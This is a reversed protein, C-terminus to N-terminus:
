GKVGGSTLGTTIYRQLFLAMVPIAAPVAGAAFVGWSESRQQAVCYYLGVALTQSAPDTLVVPAIIFESSIAIFALLGLIPPSRPDDMRESYSPWRM